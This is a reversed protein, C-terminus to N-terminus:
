LKLTITMSPIEHNYTIEANIANENAPYNPIKATETGPTAGPASIIFKCAKESVAVGVTIHGSKLSHVMSDICALLLLQIRRPDSTIIPTGPAPKVGISLGPNLNPEVTEAAISAVKNPEVPVQRTVIPKSENLAFELMDGTVTQIVKTNSDIVDVFNKIYGKVEDDPIADIVMQSYNTVASLPTSLEHAIYTMLQVKESERRHAEELQKELQHIKKNLDRAATTSVNSIRASQRKKQREFMYLVGLVFSMVVLVVVLILLFKNNGREFELKETIQRRRQANVDYLLQLERVRENTKYNVFEELLHSNRLEAELKAQHNGASDAIEILQRTFHRKEYMDHASDALEKALPLAEGFKRARVLRGFQLPRNSQYKQTSNPNRAAIADIQRTVESFEADSLESYNRAIRELCLYRALDYDRYTRGQADTYNEMRKLNLLQNRDTRISKLSEDNHWYAETAVFNYLSRLYNFPLQELKNLSVDLDDLYQSLLDGQTQHSLLIVLTFLRGVKEHISIDAPLEAITKLVQRTYNDREEDVPFPEASARSAHIFIVTQRKDESDPINKLREKAQDVISVDKMAAGINAMNRIIDLQATYDGARVAVDFLNYIVALRQEPSGGDFINYLIELSDAPTTVKALNKYLTEVPSTESATASLPALLCIILAFLINRVKLMSVKQYCKRLM